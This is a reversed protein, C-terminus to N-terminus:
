LNTVKGWWKREGTALAQNSGGTKLNHTSVEAVASGHCWWVNYSSASFYLYKEKQCEEMGGEEIWLAFEQCANPMIIPLNTTNSSGADAILQHCIIRVNIFLFNLFGCESM